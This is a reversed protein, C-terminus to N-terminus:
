SMDALSMLKKLKVNKKTIESALEQLKRQPYDAIAIIIEEIRFKEIYDSIKSIPGVIKVNNIRNGIKKPDDDLFAVPLNNLDKNRYIEKIVLDGASGAGIIMTRRGLANNWDINIKVYGIIRNIVRPTLLLMIEIPTIFIFASKFMFMNNSFAIYIVIAVNTMTAVLAIRLADEFGVHNVLMNYFGFMFYVMLKFVLIFPLVALVPGFSMDLNLVRFMIIAAVYTLAIASADIIMYSIIQMVRQFKSYQQKM